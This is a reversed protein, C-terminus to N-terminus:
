KGARRLYQEPEGRLVSQWQGYVPNPFVFWRTGWLSQYEYVAERRAAATNDHNAAFEDSFDGLQDGFLQLVHYKARVLDRRPKKVSEGRTALLLRVGKVDDLGQVNVGWQALTDITAQRLPEDRNTIYSVTVGLSEALNIFDKAGPVLRISKRNDSVFKDFIDDSYNQGSDYLYTQFTANDLVTEDLDMVVALPRNPMDATQAAEEARIRAVEHQLHEGALRYTQLCCAVYEASTQMWLDAFLLGRQLETPQSQSQLGLASSILLAFIPIASFRVFRSSSKM